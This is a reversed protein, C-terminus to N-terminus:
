EPLRHISKDKAAAEEKAKREAEDAKRVEELMKREREKRDHEERYKILQLLM